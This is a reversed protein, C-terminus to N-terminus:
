FHGQERSDEIPNEGQARREALAVPSRRDKAAFRNSVMMVNRAQERRPHDHFEVSAMKGSLSNTTLRVGWIEAKLTIHADADAAAEGFEQIHAFLLNVEVNRVVCRGISKRGKLDADARFAASRNWQSKARFRHEGYFIRGENAHRYPNPHVRWRRVYYGIGAKHMRELGGAIAEFYAFM